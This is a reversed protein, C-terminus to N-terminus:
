THIQTGMSGKQKKQAYCLITIDQEQLTDYDEVTELAPTFLLLLFGACQIM